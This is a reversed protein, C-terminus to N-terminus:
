LNILQKQNSTLMQSTLTLTSDQAQVLATSLVLLLLTALVKM